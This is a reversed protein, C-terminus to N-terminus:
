VADSALSFHIAELYMHMIEQQKGFLLFENNKEAM